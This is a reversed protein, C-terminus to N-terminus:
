GLLGRFARLLDDVVPDIQDPHRNIYAVVVGAIVGGSGLAVAASQLCGPKQIWIRAEQWNEKARWLAGLAKTVCFFGWLLLGWPLFYYPEGWDALLAAPLGGPRTVDFAWGALWLLIWAGGGWLLASVVEGRFAARARRWAAIAEENM